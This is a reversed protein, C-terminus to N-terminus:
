IELLEDLSDIIKFKRDDKTIGWGYTTGVFLTGIQHAAKYDALQDGIYLLDKPACGLRVAAMRLAKDKTYNSFSDKAFVLNEDFFDFIGELPVKINKLVNSTVIGLVYGEQRLKKIAEPVFVFPFVEYETSFHQSYYENAQQAQKDPFGVAKFFDEMPSIKVGKSVIDKVFVDKDPIDLDLEYKRALDRCIALHAPLSDLLVGDVDFIIAKM